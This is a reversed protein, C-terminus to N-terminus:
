RENWPLKASRAADPAQIDIMANNMTILNKEQSAV